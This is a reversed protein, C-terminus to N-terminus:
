TARESTKGTTPIGVQGERRSRAGPELSHHLSAEQHSM